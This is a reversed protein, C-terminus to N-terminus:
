STPEADSPGTAVFQRLGELYRRTVRAQVARGVPAGLRVLPHRPRSFAVVDFRVEGTGARSVVFAEEGQEPHSPLTGYAFGFRDQEDTMSVIRCGAVVHLPGMAIHLVLTTGVALPPRSPVLVIGARRHPEWARLGQKAREFAGTGTGIVAQYRGHRYSAPLEGDTAGVEAYSPESSSERALVAELEAQTPRRRLLM